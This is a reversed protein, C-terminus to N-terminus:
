AQGDEDWETIINSGKGAPADQTGVPGRWDHDFYDLDLVWRLPKMSEPEADAGPRRTKRLDHILRYEEPTVDIQMKHRWTQYDDLEPQRWSTLPTVAIQRMPM